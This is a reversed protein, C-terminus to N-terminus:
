GSAASPFTFSVGPNVAAEAVGNGSNSNANNSGAPSGGPPGGPLEPPPSNFKADPGTLPVNPSSNIKILAPNAQFGADRISVHTPVVTILSPAQLFWAKQEHYVAPHFADTAWCNVKPGTLPM